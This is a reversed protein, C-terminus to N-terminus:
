VMARTAGRREDWERAKTIICRRKSRFIGVSEHLPLRFGIIADYDRVGAARRKPESFKDYKRM